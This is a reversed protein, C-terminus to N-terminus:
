AKLSEKRTPPAPKPGKKTGRRKSVKALKNQYIIGVFSLFESFDWVGDSNTDLDRLCAQCEEDNTTIDCAQLLEQLEHKELYGNKNKDLSLFVSYATRLAKDMDAIATKLASKSM